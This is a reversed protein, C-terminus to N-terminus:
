PARIAVSVPEPGELLVAPEAGPRVGGAGTRQARELLQLRGMQAADLEATAVAATTSRWVACAAEGSGPRLEVSLGDFAREVIPYPMWIQPAVELAYDVVYPRETGALLRAPRGPSIPFRARLAGSEVTAFATAGRADEVARLLSRANQVRATDARPLVLLTDTWYMVTRGGRTDSPSRDADLLAAAAAPALMPAAPEEAAAPGELRTGPDLPLLARPRAGLFALDLVTWTSDPGAADPNTAARISVLTAGDGPGAGQLAIELAQGSEVSGACAIQASRVEPQDITGLDPTGPDFREVRAVAAADFLVDLHVRAGGGLRTPRVHLSLGSLASGVRPEAQGADQAVQVDFGAVFSRVERAGFFVEEGSRARRRFVADPRGATKVTVELAVDLAAASQDLERVLARAADLAAADGRALASGSQARLDLRLGRARLHEELIQLFVAPPLAATRPEASRPRFAGELELHAGGHLPAPDRSPPPLECLRPTPLLSWDSPAQLLTAAAILIHLM